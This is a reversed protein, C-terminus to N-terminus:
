CREAPDAAGAGDWDGTGLSAVCLQSPGRLPGQGLNVANVLNQWFVAPSPAAINDFNEAVQGPLGITLRWTGAASGPM